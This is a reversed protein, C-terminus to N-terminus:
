FPAKSCSRGGPPAIPAWGPPVPLALVAPRHVPHSVTAPFVGTPAPDQARPRQSPTPRNTLFLPGRIRHSFPLPPSTVGLRWDCGM